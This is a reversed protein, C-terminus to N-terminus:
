VPLGPRRVCGAGQGSEACPQVSVIRNLSPPSSEHVLDCLVGLFESTTALLAAILLATAEYLVGLLEGATLLAAAVLLAATKHLIGLLEGTPLLTTLLLAPAEHLVGLFEGATM